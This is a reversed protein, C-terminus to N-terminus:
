TCSLLFSRTRMILLYSRLDNARLFPFSFGMQLQFLELPPPPSTPICLLRRFLSHSSIHPLTCGPEYCCHLRRRSSPPTSPYLDCPPIGIFLFTLNPSVETPIRPKKSEPTGYSTNRQLKHKQCLRLSRYHSVGVIYGIDARTDCFPFIHQPKGQAVVGRLVAQAIQTHTPPPLSLPPLWAVTNNGTSWIPFPIIILM